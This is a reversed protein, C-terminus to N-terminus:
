QFLLPIFITMRFLSLIIAVSLHRLFQYGFGTQLPSTTKLFAM